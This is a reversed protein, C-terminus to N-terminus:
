DHSIVMEELRKGCYCCFQMKNETPGDVEFTFGEGCSTWWVGSEIGDGQQWKCTEGETAEVVEIPVTVGEHFDNECACYTPDGAAEMPRARCAYSGIYGHGCDPCHTPRNDALCECDDDSAANLCGGSRHPLHGCKPCRPEAPTAARSVHIDASRPKGCPCSRKTVMGSSDPAYYDCVDGDGVFGHKDKGIHTLAICGCDRSSCKGEHISHPCMRCEWATKPARHIAADRPQGCGRSGEASGSGVCCRDADRISPVFEHTEPDNAIRTEM